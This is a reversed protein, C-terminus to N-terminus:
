KGACLDELVARQETTLRAIMGALLKGVQRELAQPRILDWAAPNPALGKAEVEALLAM